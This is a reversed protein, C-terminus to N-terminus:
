KVRRDKIPVVKGTRAVREIEGAKMVFIEPMAVWGSEVANKLKYSHKLLLAALKTRIAETHSRDIDCGDKLEAYLELADVGRKTIGAVQFISSLEPIESIATDFDHPTINAGGIVIIDDCRGLLEFVPNTRGCPCPSNLPTGLDGTKFRIVPMKVRNLNTVVIEGAEGEEAVTGDEKIFEVFQYDTLAHHLSGGSMHRCQFGIPGSDVAAYGASVIKEVGFVSKLYDRAPKRMHEGGYLVLDVSLRESQTEAYQALKIIISPLGVLVGPRLKQMFKYITAFDTNGGIPLNTVGIKELALNAVIFSTWLGGAVFLNAARSKPGIGAVKYISALVDTVYELEENSYVSFKPEGTSGGSAFIFAKSLDGGSIIDTSEPLCNQYIESKGLFPVGTFKGFFKDDAPMDFLEPNIVNKYYKTENYASYLINKLRAATHKRSDVGDSLLSAKEAEFGPLEYSAYRVISNLFHKGDHPAGEPPGGHGGPFLVRNAGLSYLKEAAAERDGAAVHLSIAQLYFGMGSIASYFKDISTIKKVIITRFLPSTEVEETGSLNVTCHPGSKKYFVRGSGRIEHAAARERVKLIEVGEDMSLEKMPLKGAKDCLAGYLKECFYEAGFQKSEIVFVNQPSSCAAQEWISIDMSLGACIAKLEEDTKVASLDILSFSIKPGYEIIRAKISTGARWAEVAEAGGWVVVGDMNEKFVKESAEDGGKYYFISFCDSFINNKDFEAIARAFILPFSMDGRSLKLFNLNKTIFGSVLSDVASLFVNSASVHLINGLPVIKMSGAFSKAYELSDLKNVATEAHLECAIRKRLYGASTIYSIAEFGLELMEDSYGTQSKLYNWAEVRPGYNKDAWARSVRDLINIIELVSASAIKEKKAASEKILETFNEPTPEFDDVFRGFIYAEPM